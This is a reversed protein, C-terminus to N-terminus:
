PDGRLLQRLISQLMPLDARQGAIVHLYSCGVLMRVIAYAATHPDLSPDLRGDDREEELMREFAAVLRPEYGATEGAILRLAQFPEESVFHRFGETALTVEVLGSAVAVLRETGKEEIQDDVRELAAATLDWLVEVLLQGRSGVWRYLTARNIGLEISLSNMDVRRGAAFTARALEFADLATPRRPPQAGALDRQLRTPTSTDRLNM